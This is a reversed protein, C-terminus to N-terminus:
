REIALTAEADVMLERLLREGPALDLPGENPRCARIIGDVQTAVGNQGTTWLLNSLGQIVAQVRLVETIRPKIERACFEETVEVIVANVATKQQEALAGLRAQLQAIEQQKAPLAREAAVADAQAEIVEQECRLTSHSPQPRDGEGGSTIWEALRQEDAARSAALRQDAAALRTTTAHLRNLPIQAAAVIAKLEDIEANIKALHERAPSLSNEVVRFQSQAM